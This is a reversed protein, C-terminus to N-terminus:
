VRETGGLESPQVPVSGSSLEAPGYGSTQGYGPAGSADYVPSFETKVDASPTGQDVGDRSRRRKSSMVVFLIVSVLLGLAAVGGIVVGVIGGTSLGGGGGGPAATASSSATVVVTEEASGTGTGTASTEVKVAGLNWHQGTFDGGALHPVLTDSYVDLHKDLGTFNNSLRYRFPTGDAPWEDFRWYQGSYQGTPALHLDISGSAGADNIVDLSLAEGGSRTHLRYFPDINTSTLFWQADPPPKNENPSTSLMGPKTNGDAAPVALLKGPGLFMNTLTYTASTDLSAM